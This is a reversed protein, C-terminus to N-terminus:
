TAGVPEGLLKWTNIALDPAALPGVLGPQGVIRETWHIRETIVWWAGDPDEFVVYSPADSHEDWLVTEWHTVNVKFVPTLGAENCLLYLPGRDERNM